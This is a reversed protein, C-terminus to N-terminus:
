RGGGPTTVDVGRGHRALFNGVAEVLLASKAVGLDVALHDLARNVHFSLNTRVIVTRTTQDTYTTM